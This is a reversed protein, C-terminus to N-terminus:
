SKENLGLLEDMVSTITKDIKSIRELAVHDKNRWSKVKMIEVEIKINSIHEAMDQKCLLQETGLGAM